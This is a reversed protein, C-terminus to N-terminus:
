NLGFDAVTIGHKPGKDIYQILLERAQERLEPKFLESLWAVHASVAHALAVGDMDKDLGAQFLYLISAALFRLAMKQEENM